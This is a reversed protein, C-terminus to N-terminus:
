TSPRTELHCWWSSHSTWCVIHWGYGLVSMLRGIFRNTFFKSSLSSSLRLCLWTCRPVMSSPWWIQDRQVVHLQWQDITQIQSIRSYTDFSISHLTSSWYIGITARDLISQVIPTVWSFFTVKLLLYVIGTLGHAAGLYETNCWRYLLPSSSGRQQAYREGSQIM